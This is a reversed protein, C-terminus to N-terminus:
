KLRVAERGNFSWVKLRCPSIAIDDIVAFDQAEFWRRMLELSEFQFKVYKLASMVIVRENLM